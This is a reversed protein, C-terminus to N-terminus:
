YGRQRERTRPDLSFDQRVTVPAEGAAAAAALVLCTAIVLGGRSAM